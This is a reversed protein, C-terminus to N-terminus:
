WGREEVSADAYDGFVDACAPCERCGSWGPTECSEPVDGADLGLMTRYTASQAAAVDAPVPDTKPETIIKRPPM